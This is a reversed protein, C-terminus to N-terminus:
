AIDEGARATRLRDRQRLPLAAVHPANLLAHSYDCSPAQFPKQHESSNARLLEGRFMKERSVWCMISSDGDKQLEGFSPDVDQFAYSGDTSNM